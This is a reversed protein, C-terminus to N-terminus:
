YTYIAFIWIADVSMEPTSIQIRDPTVPGVVYVFQIQYFMTGDGFRVGVARCLHHRHRSQRHRHGKILSLRLLSDQIRADLLPDLDSLPAQLMLIVVKRQPLFLEKNLQHALITCIRHFYALVKHVMISLLALQKYSRKFFNSSRMLRMSRM